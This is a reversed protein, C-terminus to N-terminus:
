LEAITNSDPRVSVAVDHRADVPSATCCVNRAPACRICGWSTLGIRCGCGTDLYWVCVSEIRVKRVGHSCNAARAAEDARGSRGAAPLAASTLGPRCDLHAGAHWAFKWPPVNDHQRHYSRARALSHVLFATWTQAHQRRSQRCPWSCGLRPERISVARCAPAVSLWLSCGGVALCGFRHRIETRVWTKRTCCSSRQSDHAQLDNHAHIASSSCKQDPTADHLCSCCGM